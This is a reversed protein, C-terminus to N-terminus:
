KDKWLGNEKATQETLEKLNKCVEFAIEHQISIGSIEILKVKKTLTEAHSIAEKLTDREFIFAMREENILLFLAM